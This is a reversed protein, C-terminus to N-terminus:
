SAIEGEDDEPEVESPKIHKIPKVGLDNKCYDISAKKKCMRGAKSFDEIIEKPADIVQNPKYDVGDITVSSLIRAEPM